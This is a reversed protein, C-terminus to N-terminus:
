AVKWADGTYADWFKDAKDGHLKVEDSASGVGVANDEYQYEIEAHVSTLTITCHSKHSYPNGTEDDIGSSAEDYEVMVIQDANIVQNGIIYKM